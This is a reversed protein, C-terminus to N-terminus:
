SPRDLAPGSVLIPLTPTTPDAEPERTLAIVLGPGTALTRSKLAGYGDTSVTFGGIPVPPEGGQIAWAEYVERGSTAALGRVAISVTGDSAVAALGAPGGPTSPALVAAVSGSRVALDLTATVASAYRDAAELDQRLTLTWAGLAAIAV